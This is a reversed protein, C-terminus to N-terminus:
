DAAQFRGILILTLSLTPILTPILALTLTLTLTISLYIYFLSNLNLLRRSILLCLADLAPM